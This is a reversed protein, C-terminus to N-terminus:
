CDSQDAGSAHEARAGGQRRLHADRRAAGHGAGRRVGAPRLPHRRCGAPRATGEPHAAGSRGPGRRRPHGRRGAAARLLDDRAATAGRAECGGCRRGRFSAAGARRDPDRLLPAPRRRRATKGQGRPAAVAALAGGRRAAAARAGRAARPHATGAGALYRGHVRRDAGPRPRHGGARHLALGGSRGGREGAPRARRRADRGLSQHRARRHRRHGAAHRGPGGARFRAAVAAPPGRRRPGAPRPAGAPAVVRVQAGTRELLEVKRLAVEGAGVVLVPQGALDFFVPLYKM